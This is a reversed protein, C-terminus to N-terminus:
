IAPHLLAPPAADKGGGERRDEDRRGAVGGGGERRDEDRRGAM